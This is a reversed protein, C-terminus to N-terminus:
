RVSKENKPERREMVKQSLREMADAGYHESRYRFMGGVCTLSAAGLIMGLSVLVGGGFRMYAVQAGLSGFGFLVVPLTVKAPPTKRALVGLLLVVLAIAGFIDLVYVILM